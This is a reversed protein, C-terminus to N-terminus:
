TPTGESGRAPSARRACDPPQLSCNHPLRPLNRARAGVVGEHQWRTCTLRVPAMVVRLDVGLVVLPQGRSHKHARLAHRHVRVPHPSVHPAQVCDDPVETRRPPGVSMISGQCSRGETYRTHRECASAEPRVSGGVRQVGCLKSPWQNCQRSRSPSPRRRHQSHM